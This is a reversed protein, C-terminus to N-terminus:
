RHVTGHVDFLKGSNGTAAQSFDRFVHTLVIQMEASVGSYLDSFAVTTTVKNPEATPITPRETQSTPTQIM